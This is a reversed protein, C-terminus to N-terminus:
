THVQLLTQQLPCRRRLDHKRVANYSCSLLERVGRCHTFNAIRQCM